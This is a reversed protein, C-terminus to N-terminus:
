AYELEKADKLIEYAEELIDAFLELDVSGDDEDRVTAAEFTMPVVNVKARLTKQGLRVRAECRHHGDLLLMRGCAFRAVMPLDGNSDVDSGNREYWWVFSQYVDPMTYVLDDIHVIEIPVNKPFEYIEPAVYDEYPERSVPITTKDQSVWWELLAETESMYTCGRITRAHAKACESDIPALAYKRKGDKWGNFVFVDKGNPHLWPAYWEFPKEDRKSSHPKLKEKKELYAILAGEDHMNFEGGLTLQHAKQMFEKPDGWGKWQGDFADQLSTETRQGPTILPIGLLKFWAKEDPINLAVDNWWVQGDEVRFPAAKSKLLKMLLMNSDGPGTRLWYQYGLANPLSSFIEIKLDKYLLGRYKEGWRTTGTEGYPAKQISGEELLKDLLWWLANQGDIMKPVAVLEADKVDPKGRRLSGAIYLQDCALKLMGAMEQAIPMVADRSYRHSTNPIMEGSPSDPKHPNVILHKDAAKAKQITNATGPSNSEHFAVVRGAMDIIAQNRNHGAYSKGSDNKYLDWEHKLVPISIVKLGCHRAAYEAAEDVGKAGGSIVITDKPLKEVYEYVYNVDAFDRSGAIAVRNDFFGQPPTWDWLKQAGAAPIPTEFVELLQLEWAFRDDGWDGVARELKNINNRIKETEHCHVLRCIGLVAGLPPTHQIYKRLEPFHEALDGALDGTIDQLESDWKKGAHIALLGRYPTAWSRTEYRKFSDTILSAWPQHLTITKM